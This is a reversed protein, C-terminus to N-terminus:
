LAHQEFAYAAAFLNPGAPRQSRHSSTYTYYGCHREYAFGARCNALALAAVLAITIGIGAINRHQGKM